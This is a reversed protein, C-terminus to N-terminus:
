KTHGNGTEPEAPEPEYPRFGCFTFRSVRETAGDPLLKEETVRRSCASFVPIRLGICIRRMAGDYLRIAEAPAIARDFVDGTVIVADVGRTQVIEAIADIFFSSTRPWVESPM